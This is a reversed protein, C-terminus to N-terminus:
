FETGSSLGVWRAALAAPYVFLRSLNDIALTGMSYTPPQGSAGPQAPISIRALFVATPDFHPPYEVGPVAGWPAISTPGANVDLMNQKLSQPTAPTTPNTAGSKPLPTVVPKPTPVPSGTLPPKALAGSPVPPLPGTALWPDAPLQPTPDTRLVLQMAFSDLLRDPSFADTADYDDQTAFCPTVGRTCGVFTAFVDVLVNNTHLASNLDSVTQQSLWPQIRICVTRPVQIIRGARDISMGPTVQLEMQSPGACTWAATQGGDATNGAANANWTPQTSGTTLGATLSLVQVNGHSDLIVAPYKFATNPQWGAALFPGENAWTIKGESVSSGVAAWLPQSAGSTDTQGTNVEANGNEDVVFSWPAYQIGAQWSPFGTQVKMGSVTGTGFLQLLACALRGRHYDQDAQFDDVGLMRGLSYYVRNPPQPTRINDTLTAM